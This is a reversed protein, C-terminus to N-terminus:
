CNQSLGRCQENSLRGLHPERRHPLSSQDEPCKTRLFSSVPCNAYPQRSHVLTESQVAHNSILLEIMKSYGDLTCVRVLMSSASLPSVGHDLCFHVTSELTYTCEHRQVNAFERGNKWSVMWKEM